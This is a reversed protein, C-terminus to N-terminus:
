TNAFLEPRDFPPELSVTIMFRRDGVQLADDHKQGNLYRAYMQIFALRAELILAPDIIDQLIVAGDTRMCRSARQIAENSFARAKSEAKSPMVSIVMAM